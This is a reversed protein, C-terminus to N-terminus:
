ASPGKGRRRSQLRHWQRRDRKSESGAQPDAEQRAKEKAIAAEFIAAPVLRVKMKVNASYLQNIDIIGDGSVTQLMSARAGQEFEKSRRILEREDSVGIGRRLVDERFISRRFHRAERQAFSDRNCFSPTSPTIPVPLEEVQEDTQCRIRGQTVIQHTKPAAKRNGARRRARRSQSEMVIPPVNHQVFSNELVPKLSATTSFLARHWDVAAQPPPTARATKIETGVPNAQLGWSPKRIYDDNRNAM